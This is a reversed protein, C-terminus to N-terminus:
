ARAVREGDNEIFAGLIEAAAVEKFHDVLLVELSDGEM